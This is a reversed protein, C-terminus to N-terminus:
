DDPFLDIRGDFSDVSGDPRHKNKGWISKQERWQSWATWFFFAGVFFLVYAAMYWEYGLVKGKEVCVAVTGALCIVGFTARLM